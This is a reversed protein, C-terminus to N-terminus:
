TALRWSTQWEREKMVDCTLMMLMMVKMTATMVLVRMTMLVSTKMEFIVM